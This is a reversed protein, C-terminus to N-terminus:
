VEPAKEVVAVRIEFEGNTDPHFRPGYIEIAGCMADRYGSNPMWQNNIVDYAPGIGALGGEAQFVAYLGEPVTHAVFGQPLEGVASVAVGALYWPERTGDEAERPRIVGYCLGDGLRHPIREAAAILTYFLTAVLNWGLTDPPYELGVVTFSECREVRPEM